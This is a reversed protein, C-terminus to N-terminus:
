FTLRGALQIIRPDATASIQGFTGSTLSAQPNNFQAHNFANFFNGIIELKVREAVLNTVKSITLDINTRTPGRFANRGLSGYTFQTPVNNGSFAPAAFPVPDFFFNGTRGNGAKQVLHADYTTLLGNFNAQVINPDGAGSPGPRAATRSIGSRINIPLGSRYSVIPYLTWGRTLRSPGSSWAKRFPLEWVASFNLYDSLDFDSLAQFQKRNYYPVRSSNSRFGSETDISKGHTYNVRFAHVGASGLLGTGSFRRNLGVVLGNYHANGVNSFTDM